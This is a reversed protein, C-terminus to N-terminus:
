TSKNIKTGSGIQSSMHSSISLNKRTSSRQNTSSPLFRASHVGNYHTLEPMTPVCKIRRTNPILLKQLRPFVPLDVPSEKAEKAKLVEQWSSYYPDKENGCITLETLQQLTGNPPVPLAGLREDWFLERLQAYVPVHQINISNRVDLVQLHPLNPIRRLNPCNSAKLVQLHPLSPLEQIQQCNSCDLVKMNSCSYENKCIICM